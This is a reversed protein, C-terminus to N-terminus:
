QPFLQDFKARDTRYLETREAETYENPKKSAGGGTNRSAGGGSSNVGVLIAAYLPNNLLEKKLDDLTLTSVEGTATLVKVSPTDSSVDARLRCSVHPLLLAWNDGALERAMSEAKGALLLNELQKDKRSIIGDKEARLTEREETFIRTLADVDQNAQATTLEGAKIKRDIEDLKDKLEKKAQREAATDNKSNELARRLNDVAENDDDTDLIYGAGDGKYEAQIVEPLADYEAKTIKRKLAM